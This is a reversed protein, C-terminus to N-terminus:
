DTFLELVGKQGVSIDKFLAVSRSHFVGKRRLARSLVSHMTSTVRDRSLGPVPPRYEWRSTRARNTKEMASISMEQKERM